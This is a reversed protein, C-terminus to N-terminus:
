KRALDPIYSHRGAIQIDNGSEFAGNVYERIWLLRAYESFANTFRVIPKKWLLPEAQTDQVITKFDVSAVTYVSITLLNDIRLHTRNDSEPQEPPDSDTTDICMKGKIKRREATACIKGWKRALDPIYSHRRAIQIDNGSEFAGKVDERIKICIMMNSKMWQELLSKPSYGVDTPKSALFSTMENDVPEVKDDSGLNVPYHINEVPKVDDDELVPKCELIRLLLWVITAVEEIIMNDDNLAKFSNSLSFNNGKNSSSWEYEIFPTTKPSNSTGDTSQKVKPHYQTKLKVSFTFNKTNGNNGGSKKKKVEIFGEDDAERGWNEYGDLKVVPFWNKLFIPIGRIMWPGNCLVCEVDEISAFKFFSFFRYGAVKELGYEHVTALSLLVDYDVGNPVNAVIKRLNAKTLSKPCLKNAYSLPVVNFTPGTINPNESSVDASMTADSGAFKTNKMWQELLSKPSYGVGTPKSALFSTMENDVPEVKDDSGLNVPYHINEVPKGDDDELVPKCELIQKELVNITDKNSSSWEYEIFPTTKSFNSTGDTSQKVKPHYQTKLKVSFTSNKTNGNNGGSKKKKVKIFGEDDAEGQHRVRVKIM